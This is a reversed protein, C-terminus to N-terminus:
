LLNNTKIRTEYQKGYNPVFYAIEEFQQALYKPHALAALSKASCYIDKIFIANPNTLVEICKLAGSGYLCIKNNNLEFQFSENNIIAANVKKVVQLQHNYIATFVEMRRADIMPIHLCTEQATKQIGQWALSELTCIGILPIQLAFCLGKAAAMGIRLGTYSGPGKSIAIASLDTPAIQAEALLAEIFVTLSESHKYNSHDEKLFQVQDDKALAVSCVETATEICLIWSM